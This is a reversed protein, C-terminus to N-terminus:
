LWVGIIFFHKQALQKLFMQHLNFTHGQNNKTWTWMTRHGTSTTEDGRGLSVDFLRLLAFVQFHRHADGGGPFPETPDSCVIGEISPMNPPPFIIPVLLSYCPDVRHIGWIKPYYVICDNFFHMFTQISVWCIWCWAAGPWMLTGGAPDLPIWRSSILDSAHRQRPTHRHAPTPHPQVPVIGKKRQVNHQKASLMWGDIGTKDRKMPNPNSFISTPHVKSVRKPIAPKWWTQNRFCESVTWSEEMSCWRCIDVDDVGMKAWSKKVWVEKLIKWHWTRRYAERERWRDVPGPAVDWAGRRARAAAPRCPWGCRPPPSDSGGPCSVDSTRSRTDARPVKTSLHPFHSSPITHFLPLSIPSWYPVHISMDSGFSCVLDSPHLLVRTCTTWRLRQRIEKELM